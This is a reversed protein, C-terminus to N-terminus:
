EIHQSTENLIWKTQRNQHRQAGMQVGLWHKTCHRKDLTVFSFFFLIWSCCYLGSVLVYKGAVKTDQCLWLVSHSDAPYLFLSSATLSEVSIISTIFRVRSLGPHSIRMQAREHSFHLIMRLMLSIVRESQYLLNVQIKALLRLHSM